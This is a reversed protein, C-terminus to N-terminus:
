QNKRRCDAVSIIDVIAMATPTTTLGLRQDIMDLETNIADLGKYYWDLSGVDYGYMVKQQRRTELHQVVIINVILTSLEQGGM